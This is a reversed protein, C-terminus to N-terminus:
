VALDRRLFAWLGVAAVAASFVLLALENGPQFGNVVPRGDAYYFLMSLPKLSNLASVLPAYANVIYSVIAVAAAIGGATARSGTAAGLALAVSGIALALLASNTAAALVNVPDVDAKIVAAMVVTSLWLALATILVAVVFAAAKEIYVRTRTVPNSLLLDLTGREEEGAIAGSGVVIGFAMFLLPGTISFLESNLYNAANSMDADGILAKVAPPLGNLLDQLGGTSQITPYLGIIYVGLVIIAVIWIILGRRSDRITKTFVDRLM